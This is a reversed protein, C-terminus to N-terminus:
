VRYGTLFDGIPSLVEIPLGPGEADVPYPIMQVRETTTVTRSEYQASGTEIDRRPLVETRQRRTVSWAPNQTGRGAIIICKVFSIMKQRAELRINEYYWSRQLWRLFM